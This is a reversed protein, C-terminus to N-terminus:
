LLSSDRVFLPTKSVIQYLAFEPQLGGIKVRQVRDREYTPRLISSCAWFSCKQENGVGFNSFLKFLIRCDLYVDIGVLKSGSLAISAMLIQYSALFM